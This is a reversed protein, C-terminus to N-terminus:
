CNQVFNMCFAAHLADLYIHLLIGVVHLRTHAYIADGYIMSCGLRRM